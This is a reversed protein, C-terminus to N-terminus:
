AAEPYAREYAAVIRDTSSIRYQSGDQTWEVFDLGYDEALDRLLGDIWASYGTFEFEFVAWYQSDYVPLLSRAPQFAAKESRLELKSQVPKSAMRELVLGALRIYLATAEASVKTDIPCNIVYKM